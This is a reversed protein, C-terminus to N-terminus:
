PVTSEKPVVSFFKFALRSQYTVANPFHSTVLKRVDLLPLDCDPGLIVEKLQLDGDFTRFHLRGEAKAAALPVFMRWENEYKWHRFKTCRLLAQLQAAIRDPRTDDDLAALLRTDSYKVRELRQRLVDFGLCIGRHKQGYHSWLVPNTWDGSFCLLGTHSGYKAKFDRIAIRIPKERFSVALLEFPDNLDAFRALKLRGLAIDSIGHEATTIHYVRRIGRTPPPVTEASGMKRSYGASVWKQRLEQRMGM